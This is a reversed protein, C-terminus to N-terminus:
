AGATGKRFDSLLTAAGEPSLHLFKRPTNEYISKYSWCHERRSSLGEASNGAFHMFKSASIGLIGSQKEKPKPRKTSDNYIQGM